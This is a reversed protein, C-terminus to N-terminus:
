ATAEAPRASIADDARCAGPAPTMTLFRPSRLGRATCAGIIATRTAGLLEARTLLLAPRGPGDWIMRAGLAGAGLAASVVAQQAPDPVGAELLRAHATDLLAGVAAPDGARLCASAEALDSREPIPASLAGRTRTDAAVLRLGAGALDFPLGIADRGDFLLAEDARGLMATVCPSLQLGATVGFERLGRAVLEALTAMPVEPAYLDRLTVAVTCAVSTTAALGTGAPLHVGTLLTAGGLRYGAERLAWIASLSAVAWPQGTGPAIGALSLRTGDAPRTMWALEVMDDTRPEAAVIAGWPAPISLSSDGDSLLTVAGPSHWVGAPPHGYMDQFFYSVTRLEPSLDLRAALNVMHAGTTTTKAM